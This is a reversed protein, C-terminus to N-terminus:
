TTFGSVPEATAVVSPHSSLSANARQGKDHWSHRVDSTPLSIAESVERCRTESGPLQGGTFTVIAERRRRPRITGSRRHM